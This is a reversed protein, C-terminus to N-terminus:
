FASRKSIRRERMALYARLTLGALLLLILILVLPTIPFGTFPLESGAAAGTGDGDGGANPGIDPPNPNPDPDPDPDVQCQPLDPYQDCIAPLGQAQATTASYGGYALMLLIFAATAALTTAVRRSIMSQLM